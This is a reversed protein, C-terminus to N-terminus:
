EWQWWRRRGKPKSLKNKELSPEAAEDRGRPRDRSDTAPEPADWDRTELAPKWDTSPRRECSPEFDTASGLQGGSSGATRADSPTELADRTSRPTEAQPLRSDPSRRPDADPAKAREELSVRAIKEAIVEPSLDEIDTGFLTLGGQRRDEIVNLISDLNIRPEDEAFGYVLATDCLTNILRPVGETFCHVAGCAMDDFLEPDGDAASLRHRIYAHTEYLALPELHYHVSVRQAFQRLDPRKLTALLEPQGVLMIQLVQDKDANVNSLMRLEELQNVDLNQAEDVILVTRRNVAYQEILFDVFSQYRGVKEKGKIDLDFALAIWELLDGFASHTNTILGITTEPGVLRLLRRVLTTKGSGVEGSIVVFGAQGTLGYELLNLATRHGRSLYLFEPDPILTFPKERFGYFAEYM